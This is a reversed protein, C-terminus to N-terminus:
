FPFDMDKSFRISRATEETPEKYMFEPYHELYAVVLPHVNELLM